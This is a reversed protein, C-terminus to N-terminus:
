EYPPPRVQVSGQLWTRPGFAPRGLPGADVGVVGDLRYAVASRRLLAEGLAGLTGLAPLGFRIELPLVTDRAALLPLGLPLDFEATERGELFVTGRLTTLTLGFDNPNTVRTWITMTAVPRGLLVSAADLMIVSEREPVLEFRPAQVGLARMLGACAPAAIAVAALLAGAALTRRLPRPIM